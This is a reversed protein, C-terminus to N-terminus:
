LLDREDEFVTVLLVQLFIVFVGVSADFVEVAQRLKRVTVGRGLIEQGLKGQERGFAKLFRLREDALLHDFAALIVLQQRQGADM